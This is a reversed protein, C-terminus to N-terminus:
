FHFIFAFCHSPFINAFHQLLTSCINNFRPCNLGLQHEIFTCLIRTFHLSVFLAPFHVCLTNVIHSQRCGCYHLHLVWLFNLTAFIHTSYTHLTNFINSFLTYTECKVVKEFNIPFHLGLQHEILTRLINTLHISVFLTTFIYTFRTLLTSSTNCCHKCM